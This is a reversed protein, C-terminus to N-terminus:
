IGGRQDCSRSPVSRKYSSTLALIKGSSVDLEAGIKSDSSSSSKSVGTLVILQSETKLRGSTIPKIAIAAIEISLELFRKPAITPPARGIEGDPAM